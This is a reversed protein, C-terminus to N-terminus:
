IRLVFFNGAWGLGEYHANGSNFRPRIPTTAVVWASLTGRDVGKPSNRFLYDFAQYVEGNEDLIAKKSMESAVTVLELLQVQLHEASLDMNSYIKKINGLITASNPQSYKASM